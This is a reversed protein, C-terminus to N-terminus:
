QASSFSPVNEHFYKDWLEKADMSIQRVDDSQISTQRHICKLLSKKSEELRGQEYFIQGLLLHPALHDPFMSLATRANQEAEKLNYMRLNAYSLSLYINRENYWKKSEQLYFIGNSYSEQMVLASGTHFLLEGEQPLYQLAEQYEQVAPLWRHQKGYEYGRQWHM